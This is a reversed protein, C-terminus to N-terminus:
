AGCCVIRALTSMGSRWWDNELRNRTRKIPVNESQHPAVVFVPTLHFEVSEMTKRCRDRLWLRKLPVTRALRARAAPSGWRSLRQTAIHHSACRRTASRQSAGLRAANGVTIDILGVRGRRMSSGLMTRLPSAVELCCQQWLAHAMQRHNWRKTITGLFAVIPTVLRLLVM